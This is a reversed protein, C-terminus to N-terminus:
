DIIYGTCGHSPPPESPWAVLPLCDLAQSFSEGVIRKCQPFQWGLWDVDCGSCPKFWARQIAELLGGACLERLLYLLMVMGPLDMVTSSRWLALPERLICISCLAPRDIGVDQISGM